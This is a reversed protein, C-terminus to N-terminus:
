GEQLEKATALRCYRYRGGPIIYAYETCDVYVLKDYKQRINDKQDEKNDCVAVIPRLLAIGDTLETIDPNDGTFSEWNESLSEITDWIGIEDMFDEVHSPDSCLYDIGDWYAVWTEGSKVILPKATEASRIYECDHVKCSVGYKKRMGCESDCTMDKKSEPKRIDAGCFPCYKVIYGRKFVKQFSDYPNGLDIYNEFASKCPHFVLGTKVFKVPTGDVLEEKWECKNM